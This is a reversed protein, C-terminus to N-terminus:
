LVLQWQSWFVIVALAVLVLYWATVVLWREQVLFRRLGEPAPLHGAQLGRAWVNVVVPITVAWVVICYPCLGRLVAMSQVQFWTIALAGLATGAMLGVWYWRPLRAGGLLAAGTTVLATFGVLGLLANPPGLVSGQWSTIFNGCGILPNLDCALDADPDMLLKRESLVLMVAAFAGITGAVVLLWAFARSAGGARQHETPRTRDLRALELELDEDGLDEDLDDGVDDAVADAGALDAAAPAEVHQRGSGAGAGSQRHQVSV